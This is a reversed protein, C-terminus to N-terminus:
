LRNWLHLLLVWLIFFEPHLHGPSKFCNVDLVLVLEPVLVLNKIVYFVAVRVDVFLLESVEENAHPVEGVEVQSECLQFHVLELRLAGV